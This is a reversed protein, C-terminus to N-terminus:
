GVGVRQRVNCWVVRATMKTTRAKRKKPATMTTVDGGDDDDGAAAKLPPFVDKMTREIASIRCWKDIHPM